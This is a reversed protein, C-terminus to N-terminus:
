GSSSPYPRVTGPRGDFPLSHSHSLGSPPADPPWAEGLRSTKLAVGAAQYIEQFLRQPLFWSSWVYCDDLIPDPVM